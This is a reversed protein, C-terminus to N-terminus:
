FTVNNRLFYFDFIEKGCPLKMIDRRLKDMDYPVSVRRYSWENDDYEVVAGTALPEPHCGVSGVDVYVRKGVIDCPEHKHGFFVADCDFSAFAEDLQKADPHHCIPTYWFNKFDAPVDTYAYHVFLLTKGGCERECFLPFKSVAARDDDTLSDFVYRKHETPVHSLKKAVYDDFLFDKDHNGMIMTVDKRSLLLHLCEASNPGMDVVDGLHIIEDCGERDLEALIATLAPLNGHVDTILGIKKM